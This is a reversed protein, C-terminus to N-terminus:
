LVLTGTFIPNSITELSNVLLYQIRLPYNCKIKLSNLDLFITSNAKLTIEQFPIETETGNQFVQIASTLIIPIDGRNKINFTSNKIMDLDLITTYQYHLAEEIARIQGKPLTLQNKYLYSFVKSFQWSKLWTFLFYFSEKTMNEPVACEINFPLGLFIALVLFEENQSTTFLECFLLPLSQRSPNRILDLPLKLLFLFDLTKMPIDYYFTIRNLLTYIQLPELQSWADMEQILKYSERNKILSEDKVKEFYNLLKFALAESLEANQQISSPLFFYLSYYYFILRINSSRYPILIFDKTFKSNFIGEAEQDIGKILPRKQRQKKSIGLIKAIRTWVQQFQRDLHRNQQAITLEKKPPPYMAIKKSKSRLDKSVEELSSFYSQGHLMNGEIDFLYLRIEKKWLIVVMYSLGADTNIVLSPISPLGKKFVIHKKLRRLEGSDAGKEKVERRVFKMLEKKVERRVM